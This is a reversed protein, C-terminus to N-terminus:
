EPKTGTLTLDSDPMVFYRGGIDDKGRSADPNGSWMYLGIEAEYATGLLLKEEFIWEGTEATYQGVLETGVYVYYTHANPNEPPLPTEKWIATFTEDGKVKYLANMDYKTGDASEWGDFSYSYLDDDSRELIYSDLADSFSYTSEYKASDSITKGVDKFNGEGSDFTLKYSKFIGKVTLDSDPMVFYDGAGDSGFTIETSPTWKDIYGAYGSNKLAEGFYVKQDKKSVGKLIESDEVYVIYNYDPGIYKNDWVATLTDDGTVLYTADVDYFNGKSDKWGKLTYSYTDEDRSINFDESARILSYEKHFYVNDTEKASGSSFYGGAADFTLVYQCPTGSWYFSINTETTYSNPNLTSKQTLSRQLSYIYGDSTFSEPNYVDYKNIFDVYGAYNGEYSDTQQGNLLTGIGGEVSVNVKYHRQQLDYKATFQMPKTVTVIDGSKYEKGDQDIWTAYASVYDPGSDYTGYPMTFETGSKQYFSSYYESSLKGAGADFSINNYVEFLPKVVMNDESYIIPNKYPYTGVKTKYEWGTLFVSYGEANQPTSLEALVDKPIGVGRSITYKKETYKDNAVDYVMGVIDIYKSNYVATFKTDSYVYPLVSNTNGSVIDAIGDGNTDWGLFEKWYPTMYYPNSPREGIRVYEVCEYNNVDLEHGYKYYSEYTSEESIFQVQIDDYEASYFAYIYKPSIVEGKSSVFGNSSIYKVDTTRYFGKYSYMLENSEVKSDIYDDYKFCDGPIEVAKSVIGTQPICEERVNYGYSVNWGKFKSNSAAEKPLIPTDGVSLARVETKWEEGELWCYGVLVNKETGKIIYETDKYVPVKPDINWEDFLTYNCAEKNWVGPVTGAEVERTGLYIKEGDVDVYYDAKVLKGFDEESMDAEPAIWRITYKGVYSNDTAESNHTNSFLLNPGSYYVYMRAEKVHAGNLKNRDVKIIGSDPYYVFADNSFQVSFRVDDPVVDTFNKGDTLNMFEGELPVVNRINMMDEHIYYTGPESDLSLLLNEKGLTFLEIKIEFLTYDAEVKLLESEAVLSLSGYIGVPMYYGGRISTKASGNKSNKVISMDSYGYLDTYVGVEIAAGVEGLKKLGALSLTLEGEVGAKLGVYGCVAMNYSYRGSEPLSNSYGTITGKSADGRIGVQTADLVSMKSTLGAAFNVKVVLNVDINVSFVPLVPPIPVSLGFVPVELLKVYDGKENLMEQMRSVLTEASDEGEDNFLANIEDTINIWDDGRLENGANTSCVLITGSLDTETYFNLAYDFQVESIKSTNLIYGQASVNISEMLELEAHIKVKQRLVTDYTFKISIASWSDKDPNYFNKNDVMATSVTVTVGRLLNNFDAEVPTTRLSVNNSFDNEDIGSNSDAVNLVIPSFATSNLAHSAKLNNTEADKGYVLDLYTSDSNLATALMMTFDECIGSDYVSQELAAMDLMEVVEESTLKQNLYVDVDDYVDSFDSDEVHVMFLGTAIEKIDSINVFIFEGSFNEAGDTICLVDGKSLANKNVFNKSAVFFMSEPEWSVDDVNIYKLNENLEVKQIEEKLVRFSFTDVYEEMGEFFMGEPLKITFAGGEFFGNEAFVYVVGNEKKSSLKPEEGFDTTFSIQNLVDKESIDGEGVIGIMYDTPIDEVYSVNSHYEEFEPEIEEFKAYVKLDEEIPNDLYWQESYGADTYWGAFNYGSRCSYPYDTLNSGKKIKVNEVPSGETVFSVSIEQIEETRENGFIIFCAIIVSVTVIASCILIWHKKLFNTM